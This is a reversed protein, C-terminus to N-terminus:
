RLAHVDGQERRDLQLVQKAVTRPADVLPDRQGGAAAGGVAVIAAQLRRNLWLAVGKQVVPDPDGADADLQPWTPGFISSGQAAWILLSVTAPDPRVGAVGGGWAGTGALM